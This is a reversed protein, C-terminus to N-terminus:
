VNIRHTTQSTNTNNYSVSGGSPDTIDRTITFECTINNQTNDYTQITTNQSYTDANDWDYTWTYPNTTDTGGTSTTAPFTVNKVGSTTDTATVSVNYAGTSKNSYYLTIGSVYGYTSNETVVSISCTPATTDITITRIGSTGINNTSDNAFVKYTYTGDSLGTKNVYWVTGSGSMSQNTGNWQLNASILTESGTINIYTFARSINSNNSDTPYAFTITPTSSDVKIENASTYSATNQVNDTANYAYKYCNGSALTADDVYTKGTASSGIASWIGYAGCTTDTLTASQRYLQATLLGASDTGESVNIRHTTQSTNTNNYSVSGGSPDTIDRTVTYSCVGSNQANDYVYVTSSSSYSDGTDWDYTWSYASTTDAGGASTTVPFTVNKVGSATETTTVSVNYGGTGASNYYLTTGSVYGYTSNEAIASVSCTPAVSDVKIENASTYSATNGVNDTANYVYKYCNGSVLTADDVTTKGTASSGITTFAGYAGCSGASLTASQRYLQATALGSGSDTGESVNIRETSQSTYTNNYSVSGGAPATIDRTVTYSCVGSNQANDYIYVTSSSSYTDGTDWDYTWTYPNTTDAGGTSTTTPFTVNKVGSTTDTATISINYGGTGTSSYYLTTGSVYGYTSNEAVASVSCTPAVSDVKIENTSTYSATNGVNDTVNYAYKYCNGSVLTTDDVTTKGTTSTGIATFTGYAGCAGASLTASQRYLQATSLGSGSDTGESVNIRETSASTYTSNYSVSGGSPNANDWYVNFAATSSDSWNNYCTATASAYDTKDLNDWDYTWNYPTLSDNGGASVTVPFTVNSISANTGGTTSASISVIFDGTSANNYYVSAGTVYSYSTGESIGTLTCTVSYAWARFGFYQMDEAFPNVGYLLFFLMALALLIGTIRRGEGSRDKLRM